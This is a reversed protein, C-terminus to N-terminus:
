AWKLYLARRCQPCWVGWQDEDLQSVECLVCIHPSVDSMRVDGVIDRFRNGFLRISSKKVILAYGGNLRAFSDLNKLTMSKHM